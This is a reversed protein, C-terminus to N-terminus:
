FPGRGLGFLRAVESKKEGVNGDWISHRTHVNRTIQSICADIRGFAVHHVAHVSGVRAVLAHDEFHHRVEAVRIM